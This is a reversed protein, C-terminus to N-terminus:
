CSALYALLRPRLEAMAQGRHGRVAKIASGLEAFTQGLDPLVFLPDFGFGGAGRPAAAIQGECVGEAVLVEQGLAGAPDALVLVARFRASRQAPAPVAALAALLKRNNAEDKGLGQGANFLEEAYRASYVGPAGGLADVELGSDDALAPWGTALAVEMAKKRANGLFTPKDEEVEPIDRGLRRAAEDVSAVEVEPVLERLERLKGANRTAFVLPRASM